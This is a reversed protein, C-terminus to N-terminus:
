KNINKCNYSSSTYINTAAVENYASTYSPCPNSVTIRQARFGNPCSDKDQVKVLKFGTPCVIKHCYIHNYKNVVYGLPCPKCSRSNADWCNQRYYGDNNYCRVIGTNKDYKPEEDTGCVRKGGSSIGYKALVNNIMQKTNTAFVGSNFLLYVGVTLFIKIDKM